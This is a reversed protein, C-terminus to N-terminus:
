LHAGSSPEAVAVGRLPSQIIRLPNQITQLPNQIIRLPNQIIRLPNRINQLQNQITRLPNRITQLPNQITQRLPNRTSGTTRHYLGLNPLPADTQIQSSSAMRLAPTPRASTTCVGM